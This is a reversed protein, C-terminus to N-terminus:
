RGRFVPDRKEVFASLGEKADDSAFLEGFRDGERGLNEAHDGGLARNVAEKAAALAIPSKAALQRATALTEAILEEPEFVAHV